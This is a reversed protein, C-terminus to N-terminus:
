QMYGGEKKEFDHQAMNQTSRHGEQSVCKVSLRRKEVMEICLAVELFTM